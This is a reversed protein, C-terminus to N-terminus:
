CHFLRMKYKTIYKNCLCVSPTAILDGNLDESALGNQSVM